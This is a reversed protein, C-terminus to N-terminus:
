IYAGQQVGDAQYELEAFSMKFVRPTKWAWVCLALAESVKWRSIFTCAACSLISRTNLNFCKELLADYHTQSWKEQKSTNTEREWCRQSYVWGMISEISCTDSSSIFFAQAWQQM